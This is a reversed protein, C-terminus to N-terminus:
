EPPRARGLVEALTRMGEPIGKALHADAMDVYDRAQPGSLTVRQTIRARDPGAPEFSWEFVVLAGPLEMEIVAHRDAAERISWAVPSAGRQRTVGRAGPEFAPEVTVSEVSRDFRWNSVDTWFRWAAEVSAAAEVSHEFSWAITPGSPGSPM